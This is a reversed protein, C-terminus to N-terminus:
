HTTSKTAAFKAVDFRECKNKTPLIGLLNHDMKPYKIVRAFPRLQIVVLGLNTCSAMWIFDALLELKSVFSNTAAAASHCKLNRSFRSRFMKSAAEFFIVVFSRVPRPGRADDKFLQRKLKEGIIIKRVPEFRPQLQFRVLTFFVQLLPQNDIIERKKVRMQSSPSVSQSRIM